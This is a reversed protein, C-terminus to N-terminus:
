ERGLVVINVRESRAKDKDTVADAIPHYGAYGASFIKKASFGKKEILYRAVNAAMMSSLDWGSQYLRGPVLDANAFGEIKIKNKLPKLTDAIKDLVPIVAPRISADSGQFLYDAPFTMILGRDDMKFKLNDGIANEGILYEILNQKIKDRAKELDEYRIVRGMHEASALTEGPPGQLVQPAGTGGTGSTTFGFRISKTTERLKTLDINTIAFLVVFLAFLLTIFDAYSILWRELNEHEEHKKKKAM